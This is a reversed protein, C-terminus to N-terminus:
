RVIRWSGDSQRCATGYVPEQRGNITVSGQYERCQPDAAAAPAATPAPAQVAPPPAPPYYVYAPPPYSYAPPPYYYAPPPYYYAPPYYVPPFLPVGIAVGVRGRAEAPAATVLAAMVGGALLWAVTAAVRSWRATM